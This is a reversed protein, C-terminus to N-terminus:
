VCTKRFLNRSKQPFGETRGDTRGGGGTWSHPRSNSDLQREAFSERAKKGGGSGRSCWQFSPLFSTCYSRNPAGAFTPVDTFLLLNARLKGGATLLLFVFFTRSLLRLTLQQSFRLKALPSRPAVECPRENPASSPPAWCSGGSQRRPLSRVVPRIPPIM